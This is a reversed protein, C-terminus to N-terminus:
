VEEGTEMDVLTDDVDDPPKPVEIGGGGSIPPTGVDIPKKPQHKDIGIDKKGLAYYWRVNNSDDPFEDNGWDIGVKLILYGGNKIFTIIDDVSVNGGFPKGLAELIGQIRNKNFSKKGEEDELKTLWLDDFLMAGSESAPELVSWMMSISPTGKRSSFAREVSILSCKYIGAPVFDGKGRPAEPAGTGLDITEIDTM